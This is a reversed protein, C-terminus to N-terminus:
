VHFDDEVVRVGALLEPHPRRAQAAIEVRQEIVGLGGAPALAAGRAFLGARAYRDGSGSAGARTKRSAACTRRSRPTTPSARRAGNTTTRAPWQSWSTRASSTTWGGAARM